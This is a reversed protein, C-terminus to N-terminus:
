HCDGCQAPEFISMNSRCMLQPLMNRTQILNFINKHKQIIIIIKLILEIIVSSIYFLDVVYSIRINLKLYTSYYM